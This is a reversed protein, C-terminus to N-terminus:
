TYKQVKIDNLNKNIGNKKNRIAVSISTSCNSATEDGIVQDLLSMTKEILLQEFCKQLLKCITEAEEQFYNILFNYAFNM